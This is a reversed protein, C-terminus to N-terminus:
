ARVHRPAAYTFGLNRRLVWVAALTLTTFAAAGAAAAAPSALVFDAMAYARFVVASQMLKGVLSSGLAALADRVQWSLYSVLGGASLQPFTFVFAAASSFAAAPVGILVGALAWGRPSRPWLPLGRRAQSGRATKEGMRLWRAMVREAFGSAPALFPLAELTVMLRRWDAFRRDCQECAALHAKARGSRALSLTGDALDQLRRGSLHRAAPPPAFWRRVRRWSWTGEPQAAANPLEIGAVVREAFRGPPEFHRLEGLEGFLERWASVRGRCRACNALHEHAPGTASAHEDGGDLLAQIADADLHEDFDPRNATM